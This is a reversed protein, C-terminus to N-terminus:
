SMVRSGPLRLYTAHGAHMLDFAGNTFVIKAQRGCGRANGALEDRKRIKQEADRM